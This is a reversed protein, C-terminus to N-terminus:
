SWDLYRVLRAAPLTTADSAGASRYESGSVIAKLAVAACECGSNGVVVQMLVRCREGSCGVVEIESSIADM